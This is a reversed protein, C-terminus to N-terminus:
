SVTGITWLPELVGASGKRVNRFLVEGVRRANNGYVGGSSELLTNKLTFMPSGTSKGQVILDNKQLTKGIGSTTFAALIQAYTLNMPTVRVTCGLSTLIKDVTGYDDPKVDELNLQPEIVFGEYAGFNQLATGWNGTYIENPIKALDYNPFTGVDGTTFYSAPDNPDANNAILGTFTMQGLAPKIASLTITPMTTVAANALVIGSNAGNRPIISLPRDTGGYVSTGIQQNAYPFFMDLNTWQLPTCNVAIQMDETRSDIDGYGNSTVQFLTRPIDVTINESSLFSIGDYTLYGPGIIITQRDIGM